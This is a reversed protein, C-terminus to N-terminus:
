ARSGIASQRHGLVAVRWLGMGAGIGAALGVWAEVPTPLLGTLPPVATLALVLLIGGAAPLPGPRAWFGFPLALLGIWSVGALRLLAGPLDDPFFLLAWGATADFGLGCRERANVRVCSFGRADQWLTVRLSDGAAVDDLMDDLRIQLRDLRVDAARTRYRYVLDSQDPGLLLIQRQADDAISFLSSIGAPPPGAVAVIALSDGRLLASRVSHSRPLEHSPLPLRGIHAELVRGRYWEMNGLNPTWQAFYTTRPYSPALLLGTATITALFAAGAGASLWAAARRGPRLWVSWSAALAWGGISGTANLIVDGLSPDRSPIGLQILEVVASFLTGYLVARRPRAGALALAIGFPTFLIVNNIADAIGRDGCIVCGFERDLPAGAPFLTAGAILVVVAGLLLRARTPRTIVDGGWM